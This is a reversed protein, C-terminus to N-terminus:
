LCTHLVWWRLCLLVPCGLRLPCGAGFWRQSPIRRGMCGRHGPPFTGEWMVVVMVTSPQVGCASRCGVQKSVVSAWLVGWRVQEPLNKIYVSCCSNGYAPAMGTCRLCM